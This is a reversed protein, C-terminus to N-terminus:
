FDSFTLVFNVCVYCILNPIFNVYCLILFIIIIVIIACYVSALSSIQKQCQPLLLLPSLEMVLLKLNQLGSWVYNPDDFQRTRSSWSMHYALLILAYPFGFFLFCKSSRPPFTIFINLYFKIIPSNPTFKVPEPYFSAAPDRSRPLSVQFEMFHLSNTSLTLFQQRRLFSM